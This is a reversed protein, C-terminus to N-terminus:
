LFDRKATYIMTEVMYEEMFSESLVANKKQYLATHKKNQRYSSVISFKKLCIHIETDFKKVVFNIPVSVSLKFM